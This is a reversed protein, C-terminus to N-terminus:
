KDGKRRKFMEIGREILNDYSEKGREASLKPLPDMPIAVIQCIGITTLCFIIQDIVGKLFYFVGIAIALPVIKKYVGVLCQKAMSYGSYSDVIEKFMSIFFFGALIVSVIGWGNLAVRTGVVNGLEDTVQEYGYTNFLGFKIAFTSIPAAVGAGVYGLMRLWFVLLKVRGENTKEKEISEEM